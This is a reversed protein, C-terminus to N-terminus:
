SMPHAQDMWWETFESARGDPAVRVVWLNSFTIETYKTQGQIIFLDDNQVLPHWEFATSGPEDKKGIWREVIEARGVAPKSFPEFYYVADETFLREIDAPLNSDWAERYARMWTTVVDSPSKPTQSM